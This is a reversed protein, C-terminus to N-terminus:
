ALLRDALYTPDVRTLRGRTRGRDVIYEPALGFRCAAEIAVGLQDTEDAHTIAVASAGLPALAELLQAAATGGLTAPLAVVVRDPSLEGLLSAVRRIATRDGPSLPPTDLLLLGQERAGALARIAPGSALPTPTMLQPSLLLALEDREAGAVITACSARLTSGKRYAGLLAACSSTKGSGGSGVLAVTASAAPLPRAVPIQQLLARHVARTLSLRPAMPLVHAAAGDLLEAAFQESIGLSTLSSEISARARSRPPSPPPPPPPPASAQTSPMAEVPDIRQLETRLPEFAEFGDADDEIQEFTETGPAVLEAAALAASFSEPAAAPTHTSAFPEPRTPAFPEPRTPSSPEPRTAAFPASALASTSQYAGATAIAALTDSVYAGGPRAMIAPEPQAAPMPQAAPEPSAGSGEDYVDIRPGGPQAEIEAFPRQFFGGIGGTLGTRRRLVLADPGLEAQIRPILEEVSRGRYVSPISM